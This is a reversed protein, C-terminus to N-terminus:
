SIVYEVKFRDSIDDCCVANSDYNFWFFYVSTKSVSIYGYIGNLKMYVPEKYEVHEHAMKDFLHCIIVNTDSQTKESM